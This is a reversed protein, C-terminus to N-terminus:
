RKVTLDTLNWRFLWHFKVSFWYIKVSEFKSLPIGNKTQLELLFVCHFVNLLILIAFSWVVSLSTPLTTPTGCASGCNLWSLSSPPLISSALHNLTAENREDGGRRGEDPSSQRGATNLNACLVVFIGERESERERERDKKM